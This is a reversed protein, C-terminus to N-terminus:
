TGTEEELGTRRDFFAHAIELDPLGPELTRIMYSDDSHGGAVLHFAHCKLAM